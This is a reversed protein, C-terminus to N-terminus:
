HRLKGNYNCEILKFRDIPRWFATRSSKLDAKKRRELASTLILCSPNSVWFTYAMHKKNYM